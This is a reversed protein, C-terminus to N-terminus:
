KRTRLPLFVLAYPCKIRKGESEGILITCPTPNSGVYSILGVPKCGTAKSREVVWAHDLRRAEGSKKLWNAFKWYYRLSYVTALRFTAKKLEEGGVARRRTVDNNFKRMKISFPLIVWVKQFWGTFRLTYVCSLYFRLVKRVTTLWCVNLQTASM